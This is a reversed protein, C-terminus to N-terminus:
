SGAISEWAYCEIKEYPFSAQGDIELTNHRSSIIGVDVEELAGVFLEFATASSIISRPILCPLAENNAELGRYGLDSSKGFKKGASM